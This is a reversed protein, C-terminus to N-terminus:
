ISHKKAFEANKLIAEAIKEGFENDTRYNLGMYLRSANIDDLLEQCFQYHKPFRNGIVNLLVSAEVAHESPFSPSNTSYSKIPFLKLKYFHALQYPRPRQFSYKLKYLLPMIDEIVQQCLEEVNLGKTKFTSVIAQTLNRDYSKYRKLYDQNEPDQITRTYDALENLEEKTLESGNAPMDANKNEFFIDDLFHAEQITSLMEFTPNGYVLQNIEM